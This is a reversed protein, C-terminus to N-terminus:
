RVSTNVLNYHSSTDASNIPINLNYAYRLGTNGELVITLVNNGVPLTKIYDKSITFKISGNEIKYDSLASLVVANSQRTIVVSMTGGGLDYPIYRGTTPDTTLRVDKANGSGSTSINLGLDIVLDENVSGATYSKSLQTGDTSDVTVNSKANDVISNITLTGLVHETFTYCDTVDEEGQKVMYSKITNETSGFNTITGDVIVTLADNGCLIDQTYSWGDTKTLATGDYDKNASATTITIPTPNKTVTLRGLQETINYNNDSKGQAWSYQITNNEYGVRTISGNATCTVEGDVFGDGSIEVPTNNTLPTADYTKSASATKVTVNRKNVTLTYSVITMGSQVKVYLKGANKISPITSSGSSYNIGDTSTSYQLFSGSAAGEHEQGDYTWTTVSPPTITQTDASIIRKTTPLLCLALAVTLLVKIFKNTM